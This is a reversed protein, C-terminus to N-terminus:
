RPQLKVSEEKLEKSKLIKKWYQRVLFIQFLFDYWLNSIWMDPPPSYMVHPYQLPKSLDRGYRNAKNKNYWVDLLEKDLRRLELDLVPVGTLNRRGRSGMFAHYCNIVSIKPRTAQFELSDLPLHRVHTNRYKGTLGGWPFRTSPSTRFKKPEHFPKEIKTYLEVGHFSASPPGVSSVVVAEIYNDTLDLHIQLPEYDFEHDKNAKHWECDQRPWYVEYLICLKKNQSDHVLRYAIYDPLIPTEGLDYPHYLLPQYMRALQDCYCVRYGPAVYPDLSDYILEFEENHIELIM